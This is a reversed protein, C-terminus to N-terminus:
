QQIENFHHLQKWFSNLISYFSSINLQILEVFIISVYEILDM